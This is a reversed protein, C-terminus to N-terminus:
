KILLSLLDFVFIHDFSFLTSKMKGVKGWASVRLIGSTPLVQKSVDERGHRVGHGQGQQVQARLPIRQAPHM